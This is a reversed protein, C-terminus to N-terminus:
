LITIHTTVELQKGYVPTLTHGILFSGAEKPCICDRYARSVAMATASNQDDGVIGLIDLAGFLRTYQDEIKNKKNM